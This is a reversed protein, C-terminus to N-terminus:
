RAPPPLEGHGSDAGLRAAPAEHGHLLSPLRDRPEAPRLAGPAAARGGSPDSPHPRVLRGEAQRRARSRTSLRRTDDDRLWKRVEDKLYVRARPSAPMPSVASRGTITERTARQTSSAAASPM